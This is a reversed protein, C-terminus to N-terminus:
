PKAQADFGTQPDWGPRPTNPNAPPVRLAGAAALRTLQRLEWWIRQRRLSTEDLQPHSGTRNILHEVERATIPTDADARMLPIFPAMWAPVRWYQQHNPQESM